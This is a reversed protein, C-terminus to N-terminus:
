EFIENREDVIPENAEQMRENRKQISQVRKVYKNAKSANQKARFENPSIYSGNQYLTPGGFSGGFIRIINM